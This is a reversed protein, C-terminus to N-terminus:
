SRVKSMLADIKEWVKTRPVYWDADTVTISLASSAEDWEGRLMVGHNQTDVSWPNDGSIRSGSETLAQLIAEVKTKDIDNYIHTSDRSM